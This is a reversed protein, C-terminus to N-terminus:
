LVYLIAYEFSIFRTINWKQILEVSRFNDLNDKNHSYSIFLHMFVQMVSFYTKLMKSIDKPFPLIM